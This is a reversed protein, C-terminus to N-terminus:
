RRTEGWLLRTLSVNLNTKIKSALAQRMVKDWERNAYYWGSPRAITFTNITYWNEGETPIYIYGQNSSSNLSYRFSYIM